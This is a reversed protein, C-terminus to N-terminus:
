SLSGTKKTQSSRVSEIANDLANGFLTYIELEELRSLASGDAMVTFSIGYEKCLLSKESLVINLADNGTDLTCDYIEVARELEDIYKEQQEPAIRKMAIIQHKLDHCKQNIIEINQTSLAHQRESIRFVNEIEIKEKSLKNYRVMSIFAFFILVCCMISYFYTSVNNYGSKYSYLQWVDIILICFMSFFILEKTQPITGDMRKIIRTMLLYYVVYLIVTLLLKMGNYAVGM